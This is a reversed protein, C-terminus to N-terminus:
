VLHAHTSIVSNISSTFLSVGFDLKDYGLIAGAKVIQVITFQSPDNVSHSHTMIRGNIVLFVKDTVRSVPIIDDKCLTIVNIEGDSLMEQVNDLSLTELFEFKHLYTAM